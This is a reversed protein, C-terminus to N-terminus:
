VTLKRFMIWLGQPRKLHPRILLNKKLEKEREKLTETLEEMREYLADPTTKLLRAGDKILADSKQLGGAVAAMGTVAEIRRVGSAVSAESVVKVLGIDGTREVHCGGCLEKSFDGGVEVVRVESGYKEGFLAMAGAKVADDINMFSKKLSTNEQIAENVIQEILTIEEASVPPAYHNFDFRLREPNVQSGAQRVHDGLVMQLGKHLLHTATHNKETAKRAAKDVEAKM